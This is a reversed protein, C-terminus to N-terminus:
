SRAILSCIRIPMSAQLSSRRSPAFSCERLSRANLSGGNRHPLGREGNSLCFVRRERRTATRLTGNGLWVGSGFFGAFRLFNVSFGYTRSGQLNPITQCFPYPVTLRQLSHNLPLFSQWSQFMDHSDVTPFVRQNGYVPYRYSGVRHLMLSVSM